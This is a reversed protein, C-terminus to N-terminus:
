AIGSRTVYKIKNGAGTISGLKTTDCGEAGQVHTMLTRSVNCTQQFFIFKLLM